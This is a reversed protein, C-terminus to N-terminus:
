VYNFEVEQIIFPFTGEITIVRLDSGGHVRRSPFPVFFYIYIYEEKELTKKYDKYHIM